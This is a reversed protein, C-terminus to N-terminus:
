SFRQYIQFWINQSESYKGFQLRLNVVFDFVQVVSTGILAIGHWLTRFHNFTDGFRLGHDETAM